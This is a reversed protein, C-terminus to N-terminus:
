IHQQAWDHGVRRGWPSCCALSEQGESDEPTQEFEHGNLRHHERIMEDEAAGEGKGADPDKGTLWNKADPPWLVPAEAEADTRGFFIWPQNGKTNVPKIEKSDLPSELTKELVVTRFCWNKLMWGEKHGLEWMWVRDNSFGDSQSSPYKDAFYRRQKKLVRDLNTMAKRVLLLSRKIEHSWLWPGCHNQLALFSFEDSSGNKGEDILMFHHSQIGHDYTKQTNLKLGAREEKVRMLLSKLEEETEAM